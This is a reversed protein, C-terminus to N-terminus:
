SRINDTSANRKRELRSCTVCFPCIRKSGDPNFTLALAWGSQGQLTVLKNGTSTEYLAIADDSGLRHGVAFLRCDPSFAMSGYLGIEVQVEGTNKLTAVDTFTIANKNSDYDDGHCSRWVLTKGGPQFSITSRLMPFRHKTEVVGIQACKAVNWFTVSRCISGGALLKGDPSFALSGCHHRGVDPGRGYFIGLNKGSGVDWLRVESGDQSSALLKSDPSFVVVKVSSKHGKLVHVLKPEHGWSASSGILCIFFCLALRM